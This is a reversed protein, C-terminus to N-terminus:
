YIEVREKLLDAEVKNLKGSMILRVNKNANKKAYFYAVVVEPGYAIYKAKRLYEIEAEFFRKELLWPKKERLYELFYKALSPPVIKSFYELAIELDQHYFNIFDDTKIRGSSILAEKLFEIEKGLNKLRLFIRLNTLDIKLNVFDILFQNKLRKAIKKLLSFYERDFFFEIQYPLPQQHFFQNAQTIFTQIEEDIKIKEEQLIIKKLITPEFFGFPLLLYDLDKNFLKEKFIVKLNHFDYELLLFKILDKDPVIQWLLKKNELLDDSIVQEFEEPKKEFLHEAYDTDYFVKFATALDPAGLMRELDVRDLLKTELYRIKGTAFTYNSINM